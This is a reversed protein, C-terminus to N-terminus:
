KSTSSLSTYPPLKGTNTFFFCFVLSATVSRSQALRFLPFSPPIESTLVYRAEAWLISFVRSSRRRRTEFIRDSFFDIQIYPADVFPFVIRWYQPRPLASISAAASALGNLTPFYM